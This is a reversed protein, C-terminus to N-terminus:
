FVDIIGDQEIHHFRQAPAYSDDIARVVNGVNRSVANVAMSNEDVPMERARETPQHFLNYNLRKQERVFDDLFGQKVLQAKMVQMGVLDGEAGLAVGNLGSTNRPPCILAEHFLM